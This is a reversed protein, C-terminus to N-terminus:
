DEEEAEMRLIMIQPVQTLGGRGARGRQRGGGGLASLSLHFPVALTHIPFISCHVYVCVCVGSIAEVAIVDVFHAGGGGGGRGVKLMELQRSGEDEEEEMEGERGMEWWRLGEILTLSQPPNDNM